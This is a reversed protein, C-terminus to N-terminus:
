KSPSPFDYLEYEIVFKPTISLLGCKKCHCTIATENESVTLEGDCGVSKCKM